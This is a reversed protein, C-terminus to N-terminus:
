VFWPLFIYVGVLFLLLGGAALVVRVKNKKNSILALTGGTALFPTCLLVAYAFGVTGKLCTVIFWRFEAAGFIYVFYAAWYSILSALMMLGGMKPRRVVLVGGAIAMISSLIAWALIVLPEAFLLSLNAIIGGIIGLLKSIPKILVWLGWLIGMLSGLFVAIHISPPLIPPHHWFRLYVVGGFCLLSCALTAIAIKRQKGMFVEKALRFAPVPEHADRRAELPFLKTMSTPVSLQRIEAPHNRKRVEFILELVITKGPRIAM